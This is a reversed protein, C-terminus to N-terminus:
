KAARQKDELQFEDRRNRAWASENHGPDIPREEGYSITKARAPDIGLRELYEKAAQARRDGLAINYEVTGREDCHGAITVRAGAVKALYDGIANVIPLEEDHLVVDDFGFHIVALPPLQVACSPCPAPAPLPALPPTKAITPPTPKIEPAHSCGIALLALAALAVHRHAYM